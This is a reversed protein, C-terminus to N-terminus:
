ESQFINIYKIAEQAEGRGQGQMKGIIRKPNVMKNVPIIPMEKCM